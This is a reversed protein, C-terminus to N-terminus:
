HVWAHVDAYVQLGLLKFVSTPAMRHKMYLLLTTWFVFGLDLTVHYSALIAVRGTNGLNPKIVNVSQNILGFSWFFFFFASNGDSSAFLCTSLSYLWIVNNIKHSSCKNWSDETALLHPLPWANAKEQPSTVFVATNQILGSYATKRQERRVGRLVCGSGLLGRLTLGIFM